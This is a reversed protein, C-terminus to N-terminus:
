RIETKEKNQQMTFDYNHILIVNDAAESLNMYTAPKFLTSNIHLSPYSSFQM